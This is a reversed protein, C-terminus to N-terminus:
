RKHWSQCGLGLIDLATPSGQFWFPQQLLHCSVTLLHANCLSYDNCMSVTLLRHTLPCQSSAGQTSTRGPLHVLEAIPSSLVTAAQSTRFFWSGGLRWPSGWRTPKPDLPASSWWDWGRGVRNEREDCRRGVSASSAGASAWCQPVVFMSYLMNAVRLAAPHNATLFGPNLESHEVWVTM